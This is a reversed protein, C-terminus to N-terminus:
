GRKQGERRGGREEREGMEGEEVGGGGGVGDEELQQIGGDHM